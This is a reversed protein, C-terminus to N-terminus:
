VADSISVFLGGTIRRVAAEDDAFHQRLLNKRTLVREALHDDEVAVFGRGDDADDLPQLARHGGGGATLRDRVFLKRHRGGIMQDAFGVIQNGHQEIAEAVIEKELYHLLASGTVHRLGAHVGVFM